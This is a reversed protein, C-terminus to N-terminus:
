KAAAAPAAPAHKRATSGKKAERYGAKKADDESMFKGNKTTGYTSDDNKHYVRTNLNVWVLGKSKADAIDSATPAAKAPAAKTAKGAPATAKAPATTQAATAPPMQFLAVLALTAAVTRLMTLWRNKM